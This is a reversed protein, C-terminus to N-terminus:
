NVIEKLFQVFKKEGEGEPRVNDIIPVRSDEIGKKIPKMSVVVSNETQLLEMYPIVQSYIDKEWYKIDSYKAEILLKVKIGKKSMDECSLVDDMIVIDPRLPLRNTRRGEFFKEVREFYEKMAESRRLKGGCIEAPRMDFDYWISYKKSIVAVPTTQNFKFNIYDLKDKYAEIIKTLLWTHYIEKTLTELSKQRAKDSYPILFSLPYSTSSDKIQCQLLPSLSTIQSLPMRSLLSVTRLIDANPNHAELLQPYIEYFFVRLEKTMPLFYERWEGRVYRKEEETLFTFDLNNLYSYSEGRVGKNGPILSSRSLADIDAVVIECTFSTTSSSVMIIEKGKLAESDVEYEVVDDGENKTLAYSSLPKLLSGEIVYYYTGGRFGSHNELVRVMM